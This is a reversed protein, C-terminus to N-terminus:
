RNTEREVLECSMKVEKCVGKDRELLDVLM